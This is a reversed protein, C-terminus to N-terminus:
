KFKLSILAFDEPTWFHLFLSYSGTDDVTVFKISLSEEDPFSIRGNQTAIVPVRNKQWEIAPYPIGTVHCKLNLDEEQYLVPVGEIREVKPPVTSIYWLQAM